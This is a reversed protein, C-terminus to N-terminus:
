RSFVTYVEIIALMNKCYINSDRAVYIETYGGGRASIGEDRVGFGGLWGVEFVM